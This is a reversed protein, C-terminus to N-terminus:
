IMATDGPKVRRVERKTDMFVTGSGVFREILCYAKLQHKLLEPMGRAKGGVWEIPPKIM